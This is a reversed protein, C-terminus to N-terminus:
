DRAALFAAMHFHAQQPGQGYEAGVPCARRALCGGSLCVDGEARRLHTACAAVDYGGEFTLAGAPCTHLCPKEACTECPSPAVEQAPLDLAQPFALAGRYSHWLGYRPHILLGLPSQSVPEARLAWGQFPWYPPGEFPFLPMAGFRAALQTVVRRSWRDLPHAAGDRAESAAAFQPWQGAGFVGLLVITQAGSLPGTRERPELRFGGRLSLGAAAAAEGLEALTM